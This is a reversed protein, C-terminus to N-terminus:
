RDGAGGAAADFFATATTAGDLHGRREARDAEKGVDVHGPRVAAATAVAAVHRENRTARECEAGVDVCVPALVGGGLAQAVAVASVQEELTAVDREGGPAGDVGGAPTEPPDIESGAPLHGHGARHMGALRVHERVAIRRM